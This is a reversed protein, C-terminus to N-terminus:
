AAEPIAATVAMAGCTWAAARFVETGNAEVLPTTATQNFATINWDGVLSGKM